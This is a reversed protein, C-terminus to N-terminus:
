PSKSRESNGQSIRKQLWDEERLAKEADRPHVRGNVSDTDTTNKRARSQKQLHVRRSLRDEREQSLAKIRGACEALSLLGKELTEKWRHVKAEVAQKALEVAPEETNREPKSPQAQDLILDIYKLV